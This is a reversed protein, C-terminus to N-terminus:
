QCLRSFLMDYVFYAIVFATIFDAIRGKYTEKFFRVFGLQSKKILGNVLLLFTIVGVILVAVVKPLICFLM